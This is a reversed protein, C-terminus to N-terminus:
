RKAVSNQYRGYYNGFGNLLDAGPCIYKAPVFKLTQVKSEGPLRYKLILTKTGYSDKVSADTIDAFELPAPSDSLHLSHYTLIASKGKKEDFTIEPFYKRIVAINEPSDPRITWARQIEHVDQMLKEREQWLRAEIQDATAIANRWSDTVPRHVAPDALAEAPIRGLAEVRKSLPPHSDFPHTTESFASDSSGTFGTLYVPFGHDLRASLELNKAIESKDMIESETKNRYQCYATVKVLANSAAAPSTIEAGLSDARFERIRSMRGLSYQYLKWFFHLFHFVPRAIPAAYLADLYRGMEGLYPSIRRSWLTDNGSFHAMEHALISDAEETTLVKLLPLSVFLTRGSLPKGSLTLDHETVFFSADIGTAIHDPPATGMRGAIERVRNWLAPADAESVTEGDQEFSRDPKSLIAKIIAIVGIFALVAIIGILKISYFEFWLATVWFSLSVALAGQGLVQIVAIGRLAPWGIRLARYQASQSRLSYLVGLSVFVFAFVSTAMCIVAVRKGWRFNAYRTAVPAFMERLQATEPDSSAMVESVSLKEFFATQELMQEVSLSTNISTDAVIQRRIELDLKQEAQDFFWLAFGPILFIFLLPLIHAKFFNPRFDPTITSDSM